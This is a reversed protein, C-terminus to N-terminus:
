STALMASAIQRFINQTLMSSINIGRYSGIQLRYEM